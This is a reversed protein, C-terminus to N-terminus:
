KHIKGVLPQPIGDVEDSTAKAGFSGFTEEMAAAAATEGIQKIAAAKAQAQVRQKTQQATESSEADNDEEAPVGNDEQIEPQGGYTKLLANRLSEHRTALMKKARQVRTDDLYSGAATKAQIASKKAIKMMRKASALAKKTAKVQKAAKKQEKEAAEERKKKSDDVSQQAIKVTGILKQANSYVMAAMTKAAKAAAAAKKATEIQQKARELVQGPHEKADQLESKLGDVQNKKRARLAKLQQQLKLIKQNDAQHRENSTVVKSQLKKAIGDQKKMKTHLQVKADNASAAKKEEADLEKAKEELQKQVRAKENNVDDLEKSIKQSEVIANTANAAATLAALTSNTEDNVSSTNSSLMQELDVDISPREAAIRAYISAEISEKEKKAIMAAVMSAEESIGQTALMEDSTDVFITSDDLADGIQDFGEHVVTNQPSGEEGWIVILAFLAACVVCAGTGFCSAVVSGECRFVFRCRTPATRSGQPRARQSRSEARVCASSGCGRTPAACFIVRYTAWLSVPAEVRQECLVSLACKPDRLSQAMQRRGGTRTAPRVGIQLSHSRASGGRRVRAHHSAQISRIRRSGLTAVAAALTGEAM